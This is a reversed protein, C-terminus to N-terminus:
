TRKQWCWVMLVAGSRAGFKQVDYFRARDSQSWRSPRERPILPLRLIADDVFFDAFTELALSGIIQARRKQLLRTRSRRRKRLFLTYQIYALATRARGALRGPAVLGQSNAQTGKACKFDCIIKAKGYEL